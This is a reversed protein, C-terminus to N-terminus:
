KEIWKKIDEEAEESSMFNGANYQDLSNLVAARQEKTFVHKDNNLDGIEIFRKIKMLFLDDNISSINKILDNRLESTSM